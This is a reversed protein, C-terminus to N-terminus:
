CTNRWLHKSYKFWDKSFKTDIDHCSSGMQVAYNMFGYTNRTTDFFFVDTRGLVEKINSSVLCDTLHLICKEFYEFFGKGKGGEESKM